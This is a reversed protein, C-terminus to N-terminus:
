GFSVVCRSLCYTVHFNHLILSLSDDLILSVSGPQILLSLFGVSCSIFSRLPDASEMHSGHRNVLRDAFSSM